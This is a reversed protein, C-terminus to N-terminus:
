RNEGSKDGEEREGYILEAAKAATEGTLRDCKAHVRFNKEADTLGASEPDANVEEESSEKIAQCKVSGFESNFWDYLEGVLRTGNDPKGPAPPAGANDLEAPSKGFIYGLMLSAGLLSGCVDGKGGIGGHLGSAAKFMGEDRIGLADQL